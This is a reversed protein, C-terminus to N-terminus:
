IRSGELISDRCFAAETVKPKLVHDPLQVESLGQDVALKRLLQCMPILEKQYAALSLDNRLRWAM